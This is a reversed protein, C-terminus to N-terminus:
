EGDWGFLRRCEACLNFAMHDPSAVNKADQDSTCIACLPLHQPEVKVPVPVPPLLHENDKM